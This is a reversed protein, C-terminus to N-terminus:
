SMWTSLYREGTDPLIVVALKGRNEVRAAVTVAAAVAAGSSIGALLGEESALRRAMEFAESDAIKVVEDLITTDLISPVFGPGIGQIGHPGSKGGSLVPSREPEVAIVKIGHKLEKLTRAVGTITGGTGAGAILVDVRGGTDRWIERGTTASHVEPNAPNNFQDPMFYGPNDKAMELAKEVSGKMGWKAPTLVLEAGLLKLLKRREESMSDPMVIILRYGKVACVSALAIGTNGSTPELIVAGKGILGKKEADLIMALATRDKVSSTPNFYELKAVIEAGDKSGIHNLRVMPTNGTLFTVDPAIGRFNSGPQM